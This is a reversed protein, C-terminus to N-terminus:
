ARKGEKEAAEQAAQYVELRSMRQERKKADAWLVLRLCGRALLGLVAAPILMVPAMNVLAATLCLIAAGGCLLTGLSGVTDALIIKM